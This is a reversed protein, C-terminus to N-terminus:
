GSQPSTAASMHILIDSLTSLHDGSVPRARAACLAGVEIQSKDCINGCMRKMRFESFVDLITSGLCFLQVITM